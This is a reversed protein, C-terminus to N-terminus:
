AAAKQAAANTTSPATPAEKSAEASPRAVNQDIDLLPTIRNAPPPPQSPDVPASAIPIISAAGNNPLNPFHDGLTTGRFIHNDEHLESRHNRGCYTCKARPQKCDGTSHGARGCNFCLRNDRFVKRRAGGDPFRKEDWMILCDDIDHAGGCFGCPGLSRQQQKPSTRVREALNSPPTPLPASVTM